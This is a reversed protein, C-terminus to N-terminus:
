RAAHATLTRPKIEGDPVAFVGGRLGNPHVRRVNWWGPGLVSPGAIEDAWTEAKGPKLGKRLPPVPLGRDFTVVLVLDGPKWEQQM